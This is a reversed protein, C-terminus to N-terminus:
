PHFPLLRPVLFITLLLVVITFPVGIKVFDMFRYNGPGLVLTNVPSSVPTMFASSSALAVTMAFPYASAGIADAIKLAIPAMLVATATNSVFLGVLAAIAFLAALLMRPENEGFTRLVADAVLDVGGTKKLAISFPMMGVIVMLSPWQIAKYAGSHSLCGTAGMLMCALLAAIVNPMWGTIMLTVMLGLSLVAYPARSAAEAVHAFEEPLTLVLFDHRQKQLERISKWRGIVLLTDGARFKESAINAAMAQHERRLGIISLRYRSRFGASRADQGILGSDPPLLVEAMGLDRSRDAFYRGRLPLLELKLRDLTQQRTGDDPRLIDVLVVDGAVFGFEAHPELLERRRGILREIAVVNATSRQETVQRLTQGILPSDGGIRLRFERERLGYDNVFDMLKRKRRSRKSERHEPRNLWRRAILMYGIGAALIAAGFPTFSFFGFGAKGGHRLASDVVLNPPTGVLTLMGSILGAFSLPMMLRNASLQRREVIFLVVPIFIAVVATSSMLAGLGSVVLMLLVLLRTESEGSHRLLLDGLRNAIGTRVLGEGVVFLAAILVVSADSFGALAEPLTVTGTLPLAILALLAVIDVRPKNAMFLGVCVALLGLVLLLQPSM